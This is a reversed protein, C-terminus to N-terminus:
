LIHDCVKRGTALTIEEPAEDDSNEVIEDVDGEIEEELSRKKGRTTVMALKNM